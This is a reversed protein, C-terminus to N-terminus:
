LIGNMYAIYGPFAIDPEQIEPHWKKEWELSFWGDYGDALLTRVTDAIPVNGEGILTLEGSKKHDKIHTHKIYPKIAEYFVPWNEGYPADSNPIDWLIGFAPYDRVQEIVPMMNEITNFDGHVEWLVTVNKGLAYGCLVKLGEAVRALVAERVAESEILDGFVRIAPV